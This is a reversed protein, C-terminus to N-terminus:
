KNSKFHKNVFDRAEDIRSYMHLTKIADREFNFQCVRDSEPIHVFNQIKRAVTSHNKNIPLLELLREFNSKDFISNIVIQIAIFDPLDGDYPKGAKELENLLMNDPMDTLCYVVSSKPKDYLEMYSRLQYEYDKGDGVKSENFTFIDWSCKVDVIEDSGECDCEGTLYDNVLRIDNKHYDKNLVRNVLEIAGSENLIGKELYKSKLEKTRGTSQTIYAKIAEKQGTVGLGKAGMLNPVSSARFILDKM